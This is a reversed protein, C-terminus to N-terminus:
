SNLGGAKGSTASQIVAAQMRGARALIVGYDLIGGAEQDPDKLERLREIAKSQYDDAERHQSWDSHLQALSRLVKAEWDSLSNQRSQNLCRNYADFAEDFQGLFHHARGLGLLAATEAVPNQMTRAHGVARLGYSEARKYSRSMLSIRVLVTLAELVKDANGTGEFTKLAEEGRAFTADWDSGKRAEEAMQQAEKLLRDGHDVSQALVSVCLALFLSSCLLMPLISRRM